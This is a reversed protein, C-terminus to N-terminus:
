MSPASAEQDDSEDHPVYVVSQILEGNLEISSEQRYKRAEPDLHLLSIPQSCIEQATRQRMPEKNVKDAWAGARIHAMDKKSLNGM